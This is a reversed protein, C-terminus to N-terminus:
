RYLPFRETLADLVADVDVEWRWGVERAISFLTQKSRAEPGALAMAEVPKLLEGQTQAHHVRDVAEAIAHELTAAPGKPPLPLGQPEPSM